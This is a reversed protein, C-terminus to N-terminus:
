RRAVRLRVPAGDLLARLREIARFARVRATGETCAVIEAIEAFSLGHYRSLILVERLGPPLRSVAQRLQEVVEREGCSTEVDDVASVGDVEVDDWEPQRGRARWADRLLNRAVTYLWIRFPRRPHYAPAADFVRLFLEHFLEEAMERRGTARLFYNLMATKHRAYLREFAGHDGAALAAMLAEDTYVTAM